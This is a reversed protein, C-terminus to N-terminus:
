GAAAAPEPVKLDGRTIARNVACLVALLSATVINAHRGIGFLSPRTPTRIEVFAMAQADSGQGHSREEYAVVEFPMALAKCLADIPGNGAGHLTRPM